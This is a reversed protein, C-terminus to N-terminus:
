AIQDSIPQGWFAGQQRDRRKIANNIAKREQLEWWQKTGVVPPADELQAAYHKSARWMYLAADGLDSHTVIVKKDTTRIRRTLRSWERVLISDSRAKIKGTLFDANMQAINGLKNGSKDAAEFPLLKRNQLDTVIGRGYGGTDAVMATMPSFRQRLDETHAAIEDISMRARAYNYVIYLDPCTLSFAGVVFANADREGLDLGLVYFWAHGIPLTHAGDHDKIWGNREPSYMYVRETDDTCWEALQERRFKPSNRDLGFPKYEEREIVDLDRKHPKLFKNDSKVWKHISWGERPSNPSTIDYFMGELIEGPTGCLMMQADYDELAPLVAGIIMEEFHSGFDKCEDLVAFAWPNGRLIMPSEKNKAGFVYISTKEKTVVRFEAIKFELGLTFHENLQQLPRWFLRQAHHKSSPVVYAIDSGPFRKAIRLTKFMAATTKATRRPCLLAIRKSEDFVLERQKVHEGCIDYFFKEDHASLAVPDRSFLDGKALVHQRRKEIERLLAQAQQKNQARM